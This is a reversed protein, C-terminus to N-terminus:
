TNAFPQRLAHQSNPWLGAARLNNVEACLDFVTVSNLASKLVERALKMESEIHLADKIQDGMARSIGQHAERTDADFREDRSMERHLEEFGSLLKVTRSSYELEADMMEIKRMMESPKM